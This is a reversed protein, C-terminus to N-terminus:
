RKRAKRKPRDAVAVARSDPKAAHRDATRVELQAETFLTRTEMDLRRRAMDVYHPDIEVGISNRGAKM